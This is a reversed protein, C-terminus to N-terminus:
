IRFVELAIFKKKSDSLPPKTNLGAVEVDSTSIIGTADQLVFFYAPVIVSLSLLSLQFSEQQQHEFSDSVKFVKEKTSCCSSKTCCSSDTLGSNVFEGYCFHDYVKVGTTSILLILMLIISLVRRMKSNYRGIFNFLERIM